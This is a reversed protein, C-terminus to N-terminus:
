KPLIRNKGGQMKFIGNTDYLRQPLAQIRSAAQSHDQRFFRPPVQCGHDSTVLQTLSPLPLAAAVQRGTHAGWVYICLLCEYAKRTLWQLFVKEQVSVGIHFHFFAVAVYSFTVIFYWTDLQLNPSLFTLHTYRDSGAIQRQRESVPKPSTSPPGVDPWCNEERRM